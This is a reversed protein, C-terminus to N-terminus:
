FLLLHLLSKEVCVYQSLLFHNQHFLYYIFLYTFHPQQAAHSTSTHITRVTQDAILDATMSLSMVLITASGAGLLVAAGYVGDGMHIDLLAWYAFILILILGVFYVLQVCVCVHVCMRVCVFYLQIIQLMMVIIYMWLYM